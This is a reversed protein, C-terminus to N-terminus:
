DQANSYIALGQVPQFCQGNRAKNMSRQLLCASADNPLGRVEELAQHHGQQPYTRLPSPDTPPPQNDEIHFKWSPWALLLQYNKGDYGEINANKAM